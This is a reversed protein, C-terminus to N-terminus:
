NPEATLPQQRTADENCAMGIQTVELLRRSHRPASEPQLYTPPRWVRKSLASPSLVTSADVEPVACPVDDGPGGFEAATGFLVWM